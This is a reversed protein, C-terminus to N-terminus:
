QTRSSRDMLTWKWNFNSLTKKGNLNSILHIYINAVVGGGRTGERNRFHTTYAPLTVYNLLAPNSQLWTESMIIIDMSFQSVLVQFENFSSVMSQTNFHMSAFCEPDVFGHGWRLIGDTLFLCVLLSFLCLVFCCCCIAAKDTKYLSTDGQYYFTRKVCNLLIEFENSLNRCLGM